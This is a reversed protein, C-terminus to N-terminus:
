EEVEGFVEIYKDADICREAWCKAEDITMPVITSGSRFWRDSPDCSVGYPSAPGGEAYLFFEGNKKRCLTEAYWNFNGMDDGNSYYGISDATETNYMKGNIIKKM